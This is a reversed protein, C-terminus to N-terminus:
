EMVVREASDYGKGTMKKDDYPKKSTSNHLIDKETKEDLCM